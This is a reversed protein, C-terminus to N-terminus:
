RGTHVTVRKVGVAAEGISTPENWGFVKIYGDHHRHHIGSAGPHTAVADVTQHIFGYRVNIMAVRALLVQISQEAMM